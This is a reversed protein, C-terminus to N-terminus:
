MFSSRIILYMPEKNSIKKIFSDLLLRDIFGVNREVAWVCFIRMKMSEFSISFTLANEWEENLAFAQMDLVHQVIMYLDWYLALAVLIRGRRELQDM